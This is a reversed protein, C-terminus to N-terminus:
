VKFSDKDAVTYLMSPRFADGSTYTNTAIVKDQVKKRFNAKYLNHGLLIETIKQLRPLTFEEPLFEFSINYDEAKQALQNRANQVIKHHDFALLSPNNLIYDMDVFNEKIEEKTMVQLLSEESLLSIYSVSVIRMRPDRDVDGYTHLQEFYIDSFGAKEDLVRKVADELSENIKVFTGPLSLLGKFPPKNRKVLRICLKDNIISFILADVTLSLKDYKEPKYNKLYEDNNM